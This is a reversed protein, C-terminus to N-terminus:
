PFPWCELTVPTPCASAMEQGIKAINDFLRSGSDPNSQESRVTGSDCYAGGCNGGDASGGTLYSDTGITAEFQHLAELKRRNSADGPRIGNGRTNLQPVSNKGFSGGNGCECLGSARLGQFFSELGVSASLQRSRDPRSGKPLRQLSKCLEDLTDLGRVFGQVQDKYEVTCEALDNAADKVDNVADEWIVMTASASTRSVDDPTASRILSGISPLATSARRLAVAVNSTKPKKPSVGTGWSTSSSETIMVSGEEMGDGSSTGPGCGGVEPQLRLPPALRADHRNIKLAAYVLHREHDLAALVVRSEYEGVRDLVEILDHRPIAFLQSLKVSVVEIPLRATFDYPDYIGCVSGMRECVRRLLMAKGKIHPGKTNGVKSSKGDAGEAAKDDGLTIHLAGRHLLFLHTAITFSEVLVSKALCVQPQIHQCLLLATTKHCLNLIDSEKLLKSYIVELLSARISKPLTGLRETGEVNTHFNFMADVYRTMNSKVSGSLHRTASYNHMLTMKERRQANSREIANIAAVISGLLWAFFIAGIFVIVASYTLELVTKPAIWPVKVLATFSWYISSWYQQGFSSNKNLRTALNSNWGMQPIRQQWNERYESSDSGSAVLAAVAYDTEVAGLFWWMCGIWHAAMIFTRLIKGVRKVNVNKGTSGKSSLARFFMSARLLKLMKIARFSHDARYHLLDWPVAGVFDIAAWNQLYSTAILKSDTVLENIEQIRHTRRFHMLFDIVFFVDIVWDTPDSISKFETRHYFFVDIPLVVLNVFFLYRLFIAWRRLNASHPPLM